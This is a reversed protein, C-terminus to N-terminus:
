EDLVEIGNSTYLYINDSLFDQESIVSSSNIERVMSLLNKPDDIEKTPVILIEHVSSPLIYFDGNIKDYLDILVDNCLITAAGKIQSKTTLIIPYNPVEENHENLFDSLFSWLPKILVESRLNFLSYEYLNELGIMNDALLRNTIKITALNGQDDITGVKIYFTVLLDMINIYAIDHEKIMDLNLKRNCVAPFVNNFIMERNIVLDSFDSKPLENFKKCLFDAIERVTLNMIENSLYVIPAVKSDKTRLIYGYAEMNNKYTSTLEVSFGADKELLVENIGNVKNIMANKTDM